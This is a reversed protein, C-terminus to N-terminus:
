AVWEMLNLVRRFMLFFVKNEIEFCYFIVFFGSLSHFHFRFILVHVRCVFPIRAKIQWYSSFWIAQLPMLGVLIPTRISSMQVPMQGHFLCMWEKDHPVSMTLGFSYFLLIIKKRFFFM